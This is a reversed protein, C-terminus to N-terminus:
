CQPGQLQKDLATPNHALAHFLHPPPSIMLMM